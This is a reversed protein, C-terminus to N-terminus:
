SQFFSLQLQVFTFSKGLKRLVAVNFDEQSSYMRDDDMIPSRGGDSVVMLEGEEDEKFLDDIRENECVSEKRRTGNQSTGGNGGNDEDEGSFDDEGKHKKAKALKRSRRPWLIEEDISEEDGFCHKDVVKRKYARTRRDTVIESRSSKSHNLSEIRSSKNHSACEVDMLVPPTPPIIGDESDDISGAPIIDDESDDISGAKRHSPISVNQQDNEINNTELDELKKVTYNAKNQSKESHRRVEGHDYPEKDKVISTKSVNSDNSDNSLRAYKKLSCNDGVSRKRKSKQKLFSNESPSTPIVSAESNKFNQSNPISDVCPMIESQEARITEGDQSKELPLCLEDQSSIDEATPHIIEDCSNKEKAGSLFCPSCSKQFSFDNDNEANRKRKSEQRSIHSESQKPSVVPKESDDCYEPGVQSKETQILNCKLESSSCLEDQSSIEVGNVEGTSYDKERGLSVSDSRIPFELSIENDSYKEYQPLPIVQYLHPDDSDISASVRERSYQDCTREASNGKSKISVSNQVSNSKVFNPTTASVTSSRNISLCSPSPKSRSWAVDQTRKFEHQDNPSNQFNNLMEDSNGVLNCTLSANSCDSNRPPTADNNDQEPKVIDKNVANEEADVAEVDVEKITKNQIKAEDRSEQSLLGVLMSVSNGSNVSSQSIKGPDITLSGSSKTDATGVNEQSKATQSHVTEHM